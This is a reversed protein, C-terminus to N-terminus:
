FQVKPPEAVAEPADFFERVKFNFIGAIINGPAVQVANNFTLVADNYIQRSVAIKNETDSLQAQLQQFNESARLQPYAEAVAFLQRLAGTLLNEAQAQEGPTQASQAANRAQVVREFTASEHSAYGKVTEVLNPILDYRRKTQVEVQSWANDIRNRKTVLGNYTAFVWLVLLVVIGLVIWEM